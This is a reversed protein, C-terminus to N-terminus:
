KQGGSYPTGFYAGGISYITDGCTAMSMTKPTSKLPQIITGPNSDSGSPSVYIQAFSLSSLLLVVFIVQLLKTM